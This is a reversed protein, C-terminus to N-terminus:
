PFLPHELPGPWQATDSFSDLPGLQPGLACAWHGERGGGIKCGKHSQTTGPKLGQDESQESKDNDGEGKGGYVCSLEKGLIVGAPVVSVGSESRSLTFVSLESAWRGWFLM